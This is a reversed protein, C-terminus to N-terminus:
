PMIRWTAPNRHDDPHLLHTFEWLDNVRNGDRKRYASFDFVDVPWAGASRLQAQWKAAGELGAGESHAFIRVHKGAFLPLAEACIAPSSSLMAVPACRVDRMKHDSAQEWLVVYHATLFDPIGEHLSIRQFELAERIGVPWAKQSGKVAHSKREDLSTGVVASFPEGDMRRVELVRGSGDTVGYCDRGYQSGFMLVGRERAWILGERHYPRVKALRLIRAADGPGFGTRDPLPRTVPEVPPAPQSPKFSTPREASTLLHGHPKNHPAREANALKHRLESESWPPQCTTNWELLLPLAEAPSLAFGNVLICAVKFTANHGCSGSVAGPIKTLYRRARDLRIRGAPLNSSM